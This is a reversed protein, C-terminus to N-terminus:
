VQSIGLVQATVRDEGKAAEAAELRIVTGPLPQGNSEGNCDRFYGAEWSEQM